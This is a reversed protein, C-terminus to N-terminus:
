MHLLKESLDILKKGSVYFEILMMPNLYECKIPPYQVDQQERTIPDEIHASEVIGSIGPFIFYNYITAEPYIDKLASAYFFQKILDPWGPLNTVNNAGYYKADIIAFVNEDSNMLVTDTRGGKQVAIKFESDIKYSPKALRRNIDFKWLMCSDIMHEWMTHFRNIGIVINNDSYKNKNSLYMSLDKMLKLDKDAYILGMEKELIQLKTKIDGSSHNIHVLESSITSTTDFIIWGVLDNLERIVEAHIRSVEDDHHTTRKRGLTDLYIFSNSVPYNQVRRITRKWDTKGINKKISSERRIYIGNKIYDDLLTFALSILSDGIVNESVGDSVSTRDRNLTYKYIARILSAGLKLPDEDRTAGSNRPLFIDVRNKQVVIGCFDLRDQEKYILNETNLINRVHKPLSNVVCKDEHLVINM